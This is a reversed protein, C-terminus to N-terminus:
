LLPEKDGSISRKLHVLKSHFYFSVYSPGSLGLTPTTLMSSTGAGGRSTEIHAYNDTITGEQGTAPGTNFSPTTGGGDVTWQM